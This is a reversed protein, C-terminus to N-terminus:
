PYSKGRLQHRQDERVSKQLNEFVTIIAGHESYTPNINNERIPFRPYLWLFVYSRDIDNFEGLLRLSFNISDDVRDSSVNIFSRSINSVIAEIRVRYQLAKETQKHKDLSEELEKNRQELEKYTRKKEM